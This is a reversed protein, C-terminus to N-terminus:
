KKIRGVRIDTDILNEEQEELEYIWEEFAEGTVYGEPIRVNGRVEIEKVIDTAFKIKM